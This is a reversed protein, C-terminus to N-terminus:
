ANYIYSCNRHIALATRNNFSQVFCTTVIVTESEANIV